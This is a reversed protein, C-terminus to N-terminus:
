LGQAKLAALQAQLKALLELLVQLLAARQEPTMSAYPGAAPAAYLERSPNATSEIRSRGGGGGGGGGGSRRRPAPASEVTVARTVQSAHNGAADVADYTVTYLGPTGTDVADGGVTVAVTGDFDDEATAGPEAYADGVRLTISASGILTIVPATVDTALYSLASSANLRRGSVTTGSLASIADGSQVLASRYAATTTSPYLSRLLAAVGAVQPAAMSTGSLYGYSATVGGTAITSLIHRGPAGMDVSQAGFNSFPALEDSQGTAAVSVINPLDYSAPYIPTADNNTGDNGASAIFIGGADRFRAIADYEAQSPQSGGYSANIIRAGNRIAFDIARVESAVDLGFKLAMITTKPAVGATGTANDYEAAIIGAVHTGHSTQATSTANPLPDLDNNEYDYGHLCGGLPAGSDSVCSSGDWMQNALDPHTYLVGTDIVAVVTSTGLSREWAEPADIDADATGSTSIGSLTQGTNALAWQDSFRTDNVAVADISRAYNPEAYEVAADQELREIVADAQEGDAISVVASNAEPLREELTASADAIIADSEIRGSRLSLDAESEKFKVILQVPEAGAESSTAIAPITLPTEEIRMSESSAAAGPVAQVADSTTATESTEEAAPGSVSADEPIEQALVPAFAGGALVIMLLATLTKKM